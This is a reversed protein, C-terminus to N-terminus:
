KGEKREKERQSRVIASAEAPTLPSGSGITTTQPPIGSERDAKQIESEVTKKAEQQVSSGGGCGALGVALAAGFALLARARM